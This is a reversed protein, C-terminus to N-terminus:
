VSHLSSHPTSTFFFLHLFLRQEKPSYSRDKFILLNSLQASSLHSDQLTAFTVQTSPGKAAQNCLGSLYPLESHPTDFHGGLTFVMAGM